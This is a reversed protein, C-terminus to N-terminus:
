HFLPLSRAISDNNIQIELSGAELLQLLLSAGKGLPDAFETKIKALLYEEFFEGKNFGDQLVEIDQERLEVSIVLKMLGKRYVFEGLPLGIAEFVSSSFYGRARGLRL